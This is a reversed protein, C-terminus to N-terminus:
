LACADITPCFSFSPCGMTPCAFTCGMTRPNPAPLPLWGGGAQALAESALRRVTERHLKLKSQSRKSM